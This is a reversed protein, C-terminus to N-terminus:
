GEERYRSEKEPAFPRFFDVYNVLLLIERDLCGAGRSLPCRLWDGTVEKESEQPAHGGGRGQM